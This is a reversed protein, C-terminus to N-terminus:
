AIIKKLYKHYRLRRARNSQEEPRPYRRGPRARTPSTRFLHHMEELIKETSRKSLLLEVLRELLAM